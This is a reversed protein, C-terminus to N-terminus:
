SYSHICSCQYWCCGFRFSWYPRSMNQNFHDRPFSLSPFGTKTEIQYTQKYPIQANARSLPEQITSEKIDSQHERCPRNETSQKDLILHKGEIGGNDTNLYQGIFFCSEEGTQNDLVSIYDAFWGHGLGTDDHWVELKDVGDLSQVSGQINNM